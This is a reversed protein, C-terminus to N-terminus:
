DLIRDVCHESSCNSNIQLIRNKSWQAAIGASSSNRSACVTFSEWIYELNATQHWHAPIVTKCLPETIIAKTASLAQAQLNGSPPWSTFPQPGPRSVVWFIEEFHIIMLERARGDDGPLCFRWKEFSFTKQPCIKLDKILNRLLKQRIVKRSSMRLAGRRHVIM